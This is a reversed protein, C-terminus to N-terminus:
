IGHQQTKKDETVSFIADGTWDSWKIKVCWDSILALIVASEWISTVAELVHVKVKVRFNRTLMIVLIFSELIHSLQSAISQNFHFSGKQMIQSIVSKKRIVVAKSFLVASDLEM